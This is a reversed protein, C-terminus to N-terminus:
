NEKLHNIFESNVVKYDSQYQIITSKKGEWLSEFLSKYDLVPNYHQKSPHNFFKCLGTDNQAFVIHEKVCEYEVYLFDILDDCHRINKGLTTLRLPFLDDKIIYLRAEWNNDIHWQLYNIFLEKQFDQINNYDSEKVGIIRKRVSNKIHCDNQLINRYEKDDNWKACDSIVEKLHFETAYFSTVKGKLLFKCVQLVRERRLVSLAKANITTNGESSVEKDTDNLSTLEVASALNVYNYNLQDLNQFQNNSISSIHRSIYDKFIEYIHDNNINGKIKIMDDLFKKEPRYKLCYEKAFHMFLHFLLMILPITSIISKAAENYFITGFKSSLSEIVSIGIKLNNLFNGIANFKESIFYHLSCLLFSFFFSILVNLFFRMWSEQNHYWKIFFNFFNM